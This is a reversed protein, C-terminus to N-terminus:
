ASAVISVPNLRIPGPGKQARRPDLFANRANVPDDAAECGAASYAFRMVLCLNTARRPDDKM